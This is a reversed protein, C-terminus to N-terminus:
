FLLSNPLWAAVTESGMEWGPFLANRVSKRRRSDVGFRRLERTLDSNELDEEIRLGSSIPRLQRLVTRVGSIVLSGLMSLM